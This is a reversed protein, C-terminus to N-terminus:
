SSEAGERTTVNGRAKEDCRTELQEKKKRRLVLINHFNVQEQSFFFM